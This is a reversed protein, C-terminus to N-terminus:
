YFMKGSSKEASLEHVKELIKRDTENFALGRREYMRTAVQIAKEVDYLKYGSTGGWMFSPIFNRQYGDGFVNTSVGIVTGSNFMTNIGCKSHDGMILGCFQLNTEVFTQDPYNWAKIHEYTNKLNSINTDAGLNCWEGIVSHGMFGDHAKNSYGLIVSCNIEGGAKSHPGVTVPGYIKAGMKLTAHDCLAFPGRILCGEMVEADKGVYIPGNTSNLVAGEIIAGKELFIQDGIVLNTKSVPASKRGKTILHFDEAIAKANLNFIDWTHNIKLFEGAYDESDIHDINEDELNDLDTSDVRMAIIVDGKVLVSNRKLAQIKNVLEITPLISGNIMVNDDEEKIPFKESLYDETLTSTKVKLYKEWKERITLIGVRIDAVPRTYTLPLLNNRRFNDFLIYNM